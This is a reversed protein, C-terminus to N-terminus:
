HFTKKSPCSDRRCILCMGTVMVRLDTVYTDDNQCPVTGVHFFKNYKTRNSWGAKGVLSQVLFQHNYYSLVNIVSLGSVKDYLVHRTM